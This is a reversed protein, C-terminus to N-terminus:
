MLTIKKITTLNERVCNEGAAIIEAAHTFGSFVGAEPPILPCLLLDPPTEKLRVETM